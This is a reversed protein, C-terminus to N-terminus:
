RILCCKSARQRREEDIRVEWEEGGVKVSVGFRPIGDMGETPAGTEKSVNVNLGWFGLYFDRLNHLCVLSLTLLALITLIGGPPSRQSRVPM